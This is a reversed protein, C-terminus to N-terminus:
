PLMSEPVDATRFPKGSCNAAARSTAPRARAMSCESASASVLILTRRHPAYGCISDDEKKAAMMALVPVATHIGQCHVLDYNGSIVHRYIGPAFYYDRHRPYSRCRLVTFGDFEERPPRTGSRDTTLVTLDLDGRMAMRRTIEHIHTETGGLDPLFRAAVVLVRIPRDASVSRSSRVRRAHNLSTLRTLQVRAHRIQVGQGTVRGFDLSM